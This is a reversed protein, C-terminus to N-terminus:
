VKHLEVIRHWGALAARSCCLLMYRLELVIVRALLSVPINRKIQM